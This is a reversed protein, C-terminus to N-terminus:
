KKFNNTQYNNNLFNQLDSIKLYIINNIKCFPLNYNHMIRNFTRPSIDLAQIIKEKRVYDLHVNENCRDKFLLFDNKLEMLDKKLALCLNILDDM